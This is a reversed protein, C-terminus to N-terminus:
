HVGLCWFQMSAQSNALCVRTDKVLLLLLLAHDVIGLIEQDRQTTIKISQQV